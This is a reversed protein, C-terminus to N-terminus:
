KHSLVSAYPTGNQFNISWRSIASISDPAPISCSVATSSFYMTSYAAPFYAINIAPEYRTDETLSELEKINPLRWDSHSGLQLGECYSLASHWSTSGPEGQQWMLGTKNDTVTGNGNDTFSSSSQGGRVCRVYSTSTSYTPSPYFGGCDFSVQWVSSCCYNFTATWYYNRKTDTFVSDISAGSEERLPKAYNVIGILEKKTPLRWDSHGGLTLSGCVDQTSPNYTANYTGSAQYWNHPIGDDQQQWMLGTNKDTVTGNGNNTYSMPHINYEGDQGTGTCNIENGSGDYCKTQGTDPLKFAFANGSGAILFSAIFLVAVFFRTLINFM